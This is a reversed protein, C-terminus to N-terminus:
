ASAPAAAEFRGLGYDGEITTRHMCRAHEPPMGSVSHLIRWNDWIVMDTPQWRHFYSLDQAAAVIEDCVAMLLELQNPDLTESKRGFMQKLLLQVKQRLLNNEIHSVALQDTLEKNQAKLEALATQM